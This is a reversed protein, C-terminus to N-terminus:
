EIPTALFDMRGGGQSDDAHFSVIEAGPEADMGLPLQMLPNVQGGVEQFEQPASIYHAGALSDPHPSLRGPSLSHQM